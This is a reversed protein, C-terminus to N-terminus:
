GGAVMPVLHIEDGDKIPRTLEQPFAPRRNVFVTLYGLLEGDKNFIEDRLAPFREVLNNLCQGTTNGSVEIVARGNALERLEHWHLNIKVSM